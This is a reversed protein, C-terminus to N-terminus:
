SNPYKIIMEYELKLQLYEFVSKFLGLEAQTLILRSSLLDNITIRNENFEIQSKQFRNKATSTLKRSLIIQNALNNLQSQHNNIKLRSERISNELQIEFTRKRSLALSKEGKSRSSDWLNWNAEVGALFNNRRISDPNDPLDIQDQYIGGIL